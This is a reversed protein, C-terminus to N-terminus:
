ARAVKGNYLLLRIGGTSFRITHSSIVTGNSRIEKIQFKPTHRLVVVHMRHELLNEGMGRKRKKLQGKVVDWRSM